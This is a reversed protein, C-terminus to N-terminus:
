GCFQQQPQQQATHQQSGTLIPGEVREGGMKHTVSDVIEKVQPAVGQPVANTVMERVLAGLAGLALGKLKSLEEGYNEAISHLLGPKEPQPEPQPAYTAGTAAPASLSTMSQAQGNGHYGELGFTASPTEALFRDLLRGGIFGVAAAGVFMPWPHECVQRRLDFTQKVSEVTDEVSGKVTEVTGQVVEKVTQVTESVAETAEEVTEKVQNELTELKEQLSTRTEEMQRRIAEQEPSVETPNDM